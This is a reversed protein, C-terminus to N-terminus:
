YTIQLRTFLARENEREVTSGAAPKFDTYDYDLAIKANSTLYWNVGVGYTQAKQQAAVGPTAFVGDFADKDVELTGARLALEVAGWGEGGVTYPRSPKTVGKYSADEGTLVYTATLEYAKNDFTANPTVTTVPPSGATTTKNVEQKSTVYEGLLGFSNYYYTFQPSIRTHTGNAAVGSAYSFFTNQGPSRYQPVNGGIQSGSSAGVGFGLGQLLGPENRFPEAFVRGAIERRNDSDTNAIDRGDATGNFVGVTYNLTGNLVEGFLAVGIDRNPVLETPLGREIFSISGGSQLRELGVPGKQKGVRVSAAPDFKLDLYADVISAASNNAGTGGLGAGNGAFEPTLRFGVLSGLTGQFTPRLRRLVVGENLRQSGSDGLFVRNDVQALLNFKLEYDGKKLSFGKEGAGPTTAAKAKTESEEKQIEAQRELILIRQELEELSRSDAAQVVPAAALAAALSIWSVQHVGKQQKSM